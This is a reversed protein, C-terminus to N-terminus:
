DVIVWSWGTIGGQHEGFCWTERLGVFNCVWYTVLAIFAYNEREHMNGAGQYGCGLSSLCSCLGMVWFVQYHACSCLRASLHIHLLSCFAATLDGLHRPSATAGSKHGPEFTQQLLLDPSCGQRGSFLPLLDQRRGCSTQFNCFFSLITRNCLGAHHCPKAPINKTYDSQIECRGLHVASIWLEIM